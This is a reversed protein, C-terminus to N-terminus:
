ECKCLHSFVFLKSDPKGPNFDLVDFTATGEQFFLLGGGLSFCFKFSSNRSMFLTGHHGLNSCKGLNVLNQTLKQFNPVSCACPSSDKCSQSKFCRGSCYYLNVFITSTNNESCHSIEHYQTNIFDKRLKQSTSDIHLWYQSYPSTANKNRVLMSFDSPLSPNTQAFSCCFLAVSLLLFLKLLMKL